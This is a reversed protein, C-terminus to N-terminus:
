NFMNTGHLKEAKAKKYTVFCLSAANDWLVNAWGRGTKIRQIQLLCTSNTMDSCASIAGKKRETHITKHHTGKCGNEGCIRKRKYESLRHGVRLCSWCAAKEQLMNFREEASKSLYLSCSDTWHDSNPHILCKSNHPLNCNDQQETEGEGQKQGDIIKDGSTLNVTGGLTSQTSNSRLNASDYEIARKHNLLSKM